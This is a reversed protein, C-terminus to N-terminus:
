PSEKVPTIMMISKTVTVIANSYGNDDFIKIIRTNKLIPSKVIVMNNYLYINFLYVRACVYVRARAYPFCLIPAIFEFSLVFSLRM